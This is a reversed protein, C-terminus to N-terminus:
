DLEVDFGSKPRLDSGNQPPKQESNGGRESNSEMAKPKPWPRTEEAKNSVGCTSAKL